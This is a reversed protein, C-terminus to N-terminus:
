VGGCAGESDGWKYCSRMKQCTRESLLDISNKMCSYLGHCLMCIVLVEKLGKAHVIVLLQGFRSIRVGELNENRLISSTPITGLNWLNKFLIFENLHFDLNSM